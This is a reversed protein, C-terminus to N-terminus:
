ESVEQEERHNFHNEQREEYRTTTQEEERIGECLDCTGTLKNIPRRHIPCFKDMIDERSYTEGLDTHKHTFKKKTFNVIFNGITVWEGSVTIPINNRHRLWKHLLYPSAINWFMVGDYAYLGQAKTYGIKLSGTSKPM